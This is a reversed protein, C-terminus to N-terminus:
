SWRRRRPQERAATWGRHRGRAQRGRTSPVRVVGGRERPSPRCRRTARQRGQRAVACGILGILGGRVGGREGVPGPGRLRHGGGRARNGSRDPARTRRGGARHARARRDLATPGRDRDPGLGANAQARLEAREVLGLLGVMDLPRPAIVSPDSLEPWTSRARDAALEVGNGDPDPLCIAESIGHDSAGTIPTDTAALRRAARTLELRSPHLLAFHYLGAHRGARAAAPEEVLVLLDEGGAGLTATRHDPRDEGDARRHPRLGIAEEYFRVSRDLETVTLHVPGLRLTAPLMLGALIPM